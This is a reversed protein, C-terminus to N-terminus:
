IEGNYIYLIFWTGSQILDNEGNLMASRFAARTPPINTKHPDNGESNLPYRRHPSLAFISVNNIHNIVTGRNINFVINLIRKGCTYCVVYARTVCVCARACVVCMCVHVCACMCVVPCCYTWMERRKEERRM